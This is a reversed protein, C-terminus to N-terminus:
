HLQEYWIIHKGIQIKDGLNLKQQAGTQLLLEGNISIDGFGLNIISHSQSTVDWHLASHTRSVYSDDLMIDSSEARGIIMRTRDLPFTTVKGDPAYVRLIFDARMKPWTSNDSPYLRQEVHRDNPRNPELLSQEFNSWLVNPRRQACADILEAITKQREFYAIFERTKGEKGEGPLSEYDVGLDFCLTKLESESFHNMLALRLKERRM